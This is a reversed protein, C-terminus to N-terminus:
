AKRPIQFFKVRANAFLVESTVKKTEIVNGADDRVTYTDGDAARLIAKRGGTLPDIPFNLYGRVQEGDKSKAQWDISFALPKGQAKIAAVAQDYDKNTQPKSLIGASRIMRSVMSAEVQGGKFKKVSPECFKILYGDAGNGSKVLRIPGLKYKRLGAAEGDEIVTPIPNETLVGFYILDKGDPGVAPPPTQFKSGGDEHKDWNISEPERLAIGATDM